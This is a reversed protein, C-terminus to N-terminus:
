PWRDLAPVEPAQDDSSRARHHAVAFALVQEAHHLVADPALRAAVRVRASRREPDAVADLLHRVAADLQADDAGVPALVGGAERVLRATTGDEPTVSLVPKAHRLAEVVKTYLLDARPGPVLVADAEAVLVAADRPSLDLHVTASPAAHEVAALAAEDADRLALQLRLRGDHAARGLARLLPGEVLWRYASGAYAVTPLHTPGPVAAAGDDSRAPEAVLHPLVFCRTTDLGGAAAVEDAVDRSPFTWADALRGLARVQHRALRAVRADTGTWPGRVPPLPDGLSCVLPFARRRRAALAAALSSEPLGRAWVVLDDPLDDLHGLLTAAAPDAWSSVPFPPRSVLAGARDVARALAGRPTGAPLHCWSRLGGAPPVTWRRDDPLGAAGDLPEHGTASLVMVDHGRRRLGDVLAGTVIGEASRPAPHVNRSLVLVSSM